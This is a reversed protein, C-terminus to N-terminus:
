EMWLGIIGDVIRNNWGCDSLETWLETICGFDPYEMLMSFEVIQIRIPIQKNVYVLNHKILKKGTCSLLRPPSQNGYFTGAVGPM